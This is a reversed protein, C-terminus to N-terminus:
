GGGEPPCGIDDFSGEPCACCSSQIVPGGCEEVCTILRYCEEIPCAGSKTEGCGAAALLLGTLTAAVSFSKGM